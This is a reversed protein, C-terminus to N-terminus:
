QWFFRYPNFKFTEPLVQSALFYLAVGYYGVTVVVKEIKGGISDILTPVYLILFMHYYYYMRAIASNVSAIPWLIAAFVQLYFLVKNEASDGTFRKRYYFRDDSLQHACTERAAFSGGVHALYSNFGM